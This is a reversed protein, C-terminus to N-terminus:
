IREGQYISATGFLLSQTNVKQFGSQTMLNEFDKGYPFNEITQNLYKYAQFNGSVCFGIIPVCHRLYFLHFARIIANSPLSFELILARGGPKLVRFMERLVRSPDEVNRIGFSMSCADFLQDAFPIQNADGEQLTIRNDLGKKLIKKRGIELMKGAPDLGYATQVNPNKRCMTILVDATGTALDLVKLQNTAPLKNALQNRWSVDLGFSLMRNLLDYRASIANFMRWSEAKPLHTNKSISM